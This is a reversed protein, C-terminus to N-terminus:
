SLLQVKVRDGKKIKTIEEPVVMIGDASVLSKLIGSGQPGTLKAFIRNNKEELKVRFFYRLGKKKKIEEESVAYIQRYRFYKVGSMWMICPKVFEEFCILSSVPNGPLGFILIKDQNEKNLVTFLFPKGPRIRLRWFKFEAHLESLAEKVYDYEGVSVGGSILLIDLNLKIAEKIKRKIKEKNDPVIGLNYPLSGSNLVAAYLSYSNSNRVKGKILRRGLEILEDGTSLIGVKIRRYVKIKKIGLAALMGVQAPGIKMGKTLVQEEKKVDEGKYRVNEGKKICRSIKIYQSNIEEIDEVKIVCDSGLPLEAGTMIRVAEMKRIRRKLREGAPIDAIVKLIIPRKLSAGKTDRSNLAFGDMASNDFPPINDKSKINQALIRGLSSFIDVKELDVTKINSCIIELARKASIM